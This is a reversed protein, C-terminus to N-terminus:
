AELQGPSLWSRFIVQSVAEQDKILRGLKHQCDPDVIATLRTIPFGEPDRRYQWREVVGQVLAYGCGGLGCCATDYLAYGCLYLVQQGRFAIQVERDFRYHGGIAIVERNLDRHVYDCYRDGAGAITQHGSTM